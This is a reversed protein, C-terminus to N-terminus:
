AEEITLKTANYQQNRTFADPQVFYFLGCHDREPRGGVGMFISVFFPRWDGCIEQIDLIAARDREVVVELNLVGSRWRGNRAGRRSGGLTRGKGTNTQLALPTSSLQPDYTAEFSTWLGIVGIEWFDLGYEDDQDSFTVKYSQATYIAGLNLSYPAILGNPDDGAFGLLSVGFDYTAFPVVPFIDAAGSDFIQTTWANDSYLQWRVKGGHARHNHLSVVDIKRGGEWTGKITYDATDASRFLSDRLANQTNEMPFGVAPTSTSSLTASDHHNIPAIVMHQGSPM